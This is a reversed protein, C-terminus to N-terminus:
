WRRAEIEGRLTAIVVWDGNAIGLSPPLGPEIEAFGEPQLEALWPM